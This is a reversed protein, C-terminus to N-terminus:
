CGSTLAEAFYRAFHIHSAGAPIKVANELANAGEVCLMNQWGDVGLDSMTAATKAWPNWVATSLSGRKEIHIRRKFTLDEIVCAKDTNLYIRGLEDTFTVSGDQVSRENNRTLDVFETGDLGQVKIGRVDSVNFYTHLGETLQVEEESHNTSTLTVALENGVVIELKLAVKQHWHLKSLESEGLSLCVRVSGGDCIETHEVSWQTIRAYGHGPLKANTPHAGFWPWCVPVGGRIAKGPVYQARKSVWLVPEAQRKPHWSVVQGGELSITAVAHISDIEILTTGSSLQKFLLVDNIAFKNNLLTVEM